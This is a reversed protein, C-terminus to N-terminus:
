YFSNVYNIVFTVWTFKVKSRSFKSVDTITNENFGILM